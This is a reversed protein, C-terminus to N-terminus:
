TCGTVLILVGSSGAVMHDKLNRDHKLDRFLDWPGVPM